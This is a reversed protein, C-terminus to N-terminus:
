PMLKKVLWKQGDSNAEIAGENGTQYVAVHHRALRDLVEPSPHGFPSPSAVSIIAVGPKLVELMGESTATKSGHHAVKLLTSRVGSLEKFSIRKEMASGLDAMLVMATQRFRIGLVVADADNSEALHAIGRGASLIFTEAGGESLKEGQRVKRVRVGRDNAIELLERVLPVSPLEGVWLEDVSCQKLVPILGSLHDSHAHTLVVRDLRQIRQNWLYPLLVDEGIDIRREQQGEHFGAAALGGGDVLMLQGEPFHVLMSDGQGVDLVTLTLGPSVPKPSFPSLIIMLMAAMLLLGSVLTTRQFKFWVGCAFVLILVLYILQLLAPPTVVRLNMAGISAAQHSIRILSMLGLSVGGALFDAMGHSLFSVALEVLGIPVIIGMLPVAILNLLPSSLSARNFYVAMLLTFTGQIAMSFIFLSAVRLVVRHTQVYCWGILRPSLFRLFRRDDFKEVKFRLRVRQAARPPPLHVDRGVDELKDLAQVRPLIWRSVLPTGMSAISLVCAFSLQFGPDYVQGPQWCCILVAALGIANLPSRDRELLSAVLYTSAMVVARVIPTRAEVMWAYSVLFLIIFLTAVSRPVRFWRLLMFLFWAIIGVHLGAIVLVHYIGTAQFDQELSRDLFYRNGLLIAKLAAGASTLTGGEHSYARDIEADLRHRVRYILDIWLSGEESGKKLLLRQSKINGVLFIGERELQAAYDFSGPNRFGKPKRLSVLAEVRDGYRLPYPMPLGNLQNMPLALRVDGAVSYFRRANELSHVQFRLLYGFPTKVPDRNVTGVVRSPQSLDLQKLALRVKLHHPPFDAADVAVWLVGLVAFMLSVSLCVLLPANRRHAIIGLIFLGITIFLLLLLHAAVWPSLAIGACFSSAVWLLPAKM